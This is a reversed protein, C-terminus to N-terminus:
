SWHTMRCKATLQFLPKLVSQATTDSGSTPCFVHAINPFIQAHFICLKVSRTCLGSTTRGRHVLMDVLFPTWRWCSSSGHRSYRGTLPLPGSWRFGLLPLWILQKCSQRCAWPQVLAFFPRIWRMLSVHCTLLPTTRYQQCGCFRILSGSPSYTATKTYIM